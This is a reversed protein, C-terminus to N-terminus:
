TSKSLDQEDHYSVVISQQHLNPLTVELLNYYNGEWAIRLRTAQSIKHTADLPQM